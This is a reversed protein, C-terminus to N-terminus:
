ELVKCEVPDMVRLDAYGDLHLPEGDRISSSFLNVRGELAEREFCIQAIEGDTRTTETLYLKDNNLYFVEKKTMSSGDLQLVFTTAEGDQLHDTFFVQLLPISFGASNNINKKMVWLAGIYVTEELAENLYTLRGDGFQLDATPTNEANIIGYFQFRAQWVKEPPADEDPYEPYVDDNYYSTLDNLYDYKGIDDKPEESCAACILLVLPALMLCLRRTM